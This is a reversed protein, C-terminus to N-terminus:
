RASRAEEDGEIELDVITSGVAHHAMFLEFDHRDLSLSVTEFGPGYLVAPIQQEAALHRNAKGIKERPIVTLSSAATM